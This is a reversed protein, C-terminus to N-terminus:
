CLYTQPSYNALITLHFMVPSGSLFAVVLEQADFECVDMRKTLSLLRHVLKEVGM